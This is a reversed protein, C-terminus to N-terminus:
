YKLVMWHTQRAEWKLIRLLKQAMFRMRFMSVLYFNQSLDKGLQQKISVFPMEVIDIVKNKKQLGRRFVHLFTTKLLFILQIFPRQRSLHWLFLLNPQGEAQNQGLNFLETKYLKERFFIWRNKVKKEFKQLCFYCPADLNLQLLM